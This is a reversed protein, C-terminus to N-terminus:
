NAISQSEIISIEDPTLDYLQYVLQDIKDAISTIRRKIVIQEQPLKSVNQYKYAAVIDLVLTTISNSIPSEVYPVIPLSALENRQVHLTPFSTEYYLKMMKSNLIGVLYLLHKECKKSDLVVLVDKVYYNENDFTGELSNGTDRILVKPQEFRESNGPRATKRNATMEHPLYRVYEGKFQYSYRHIDEGRLLPKNIKQNSITTLFKADDGTKLGFAIDFQEGLPKSCGRMKDKIGELAPEISIDFINKYTNHFIDQEIDKFVANALTMNAPCLTVKIKNEQKKGMEWFLICTKVNANSFVYDTFDVVKNISTNLLLAKRLSEFSDLRLWGNSVINGFQGGKKLLSFAKEIFCCYLDSKGVFTSYHKWFIDKVNPAINHPRVYPPNGIVVDFGGRKFISPFEAKWDFPNITSFDEKGIDKRDKIFDPSILANGCKINGDLDPLAREQFLRMQKKLTEESEGELVKLLLSIKTVEVAQRDIDVGFINNTLIRKREATTLKWGEKSLFVKPHNGKSHNEPNNAIYWSLHWDLMYQYAGILFSGSGCAPDLIKLKSITSPEKDQLPGTLTTKVIYDVIYTPTYFVGGAKKVEPKEEVKAHGGATLRIVKGLFREYVHGLIEAPLVSFEYPSQPYYLGNIIDKLVKDDIALGLTFEDPPCERGKEHRFHFVGSNYRDDAERFLDTLKRYVGVNASCRKLRGIPEIGRDECIRLFIIRDITAQVAYNLDLVGIGNNRLAIHKALIDRWDEIQSLFDSDVTATGKKSKAESAFKDFSGNLIAEKSFVSYIEDWRNIYDVFTMYLLRSHSPKDNPSPKIRTDYVAFEEFDTLISLPLNASWAYRRLQYAPGIDEKIYVSPKKAELFFIRRGGIRFSYDPAKTTGGIKIADEHIVEKYLESSDQRNELDWGLLSLFPDLFEKRLQAEKYDGNKYSVLNDEFRRVLNELLIM